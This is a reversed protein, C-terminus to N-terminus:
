VPPALGYHESVPDQYESIDIFPLNQPLRGDAILRERLLLIERYMHIGYYEDRCNFCDWAARFQPRLCKTFMTDDRLAMQMDSWRCHLYDDHEVDRCYLWMVSETFSDPNLIKVPYRHRWAGSPGNEAAAPLTPDTTLMLDADDDAPPGPQIETLWPIIKSQPLLHVVFGNKIHFHSDGVPHYRNWAIIVEM